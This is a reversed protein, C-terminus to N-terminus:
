NQTQATPIVLFDGRLKHNLTVGPYIVWLHSVTVVTVVSSIYTSVVMPSVTVATVVGRIYTSVVRVM